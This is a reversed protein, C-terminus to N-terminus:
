LQGAGLRLVGDGEVRQGPHCEEAEPRRFRLRRGCEQGAIIGAVCPEPDDALVHTAPDDRRRALREEAGDDRVIRIAVGAAPGAQVQGSNRM